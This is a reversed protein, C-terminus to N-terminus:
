QVIHFLIFVFIMLISMSPINAKSQLITVMGDNGIISRIWGIYVSVRTYVGAHDRLGCGRGYSTIGALVWSREKNSYFM